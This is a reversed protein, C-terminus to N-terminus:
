KGGISRCSREHKGVAHLLRVEGFRDVAQHIQIESLNEVIQQRLRQPISTLITIARTM